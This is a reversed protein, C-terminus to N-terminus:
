DLSRAVAAGRSEEGCPTIVQLAALRRRKARIQSRSVLSPITNRDVIAIGLSVYTM